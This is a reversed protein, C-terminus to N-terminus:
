RCKRRPLELDKNPPLRYKTNSIKDHWFRVASAETKITSAALGKEKLWTFYHVVHKPSINQLKELRYHEAVFQLFRNFAESYREKTKYSGQRNHRYLKEAQAKLNLYNKNMFFEM